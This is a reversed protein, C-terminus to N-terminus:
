HERLVEFVTRVKKLHQFRELFSGDNSFVNSAKAKAHSHSHTHNSKTSASAASSTSPAPSAYDSASHPIPTAAGSMEQTASTNVDPLLLLLHHILDFAFPSPQRQWFRTPRKVDDAQSSRESGRRPLNPFIWDKHRLSPRSIGATFSFVRVGQYDRILSRDLRLNPTFASM